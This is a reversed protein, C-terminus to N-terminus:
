GAPGELLTELDYVRGDKVVVRVDRVNRIDSLPDGAFVVLDALMGPRVRGFETEYGLAEASVSTTARMVDGASMGGYRVMAEMEAILSLGQPIIPSDTGMVVVGGAVVVRRGLSAMDSVMRRQTDLDGRARGRNISDGFFVPIRPDDLLTADDAVLVGFSGYIGVTPTITMGSRALLEVVDQYSRSLSSVKTSYGRRSTGQVHEVGDAGNAVAPYLEHSTVPIGMAHAERIVRRQMADSLRVYTKVVDYPMAGAQELVLEVQASSALGGGGDYYIRSGDVPSGTGFVRPGLRRGIAISERAESVQYADAAPTRITTVGYSLWLRGLQEGSSLGGHTHMEILGPSVVGDSADVVRGRHLDADHADVRVIRNGDIVIDVNRRLEDSVGDFLAGAHVVVRDSLLERRWTLPVPIDEIRGDELWVRRLTGTTLYVISRSDGAWTPDATLENNLRVPPGIAEGDRAVPVVWLVGASAYAIMQGDPSFLPGDTSRSGVSAHPLFDLWRENVQQAPAEDDSDEAAIRPVPILLARNVGERFRSSYPELASVGIYLGDPSWSARGPNNLGGRLTRERGTAVSIVNIAGGGREGRASFAIETGSPSWVPRDGGNQTLQQLDGSAVDHIWIQLSGSRDSAYALRSGDPSWMPHVEVFSDDTLRVPDDGIPMVWLDGLASFAVREGEPSVSPAVIGRVAHIGTDDFDRLAKRYSPRDLTVTASFEIDSASGGEASRARLKGDATYLLRGGTWSARFPFVDENASSVRHGMGQSPSAPAVFLESSGYSQANYSIQRGDESWSPAFLTTGQRDQADIVLQHEGTSSRVWVGVGPGDVVYAVSGGSPAYAPAYENGSGDTLQRVAGSGVTVEWIDYTGARDSSFVVRNGDPSWYPERDDFPGSTIQRLGSGDSAVVWVDYTGAWYAQFVIRAGDPSWHPQRADGEADTLATAEGGGAPLTWIRGLADMAITRRDPSLAAAMNTGEHITVEIDVPASAEFASTLGLASCAMLAALATRLATGRTV